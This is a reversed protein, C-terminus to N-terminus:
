LCQRFAVGELFGGGVELGQAAVTAQQVASNGGRVVTGGGRLKRFRRASHAPGECDLGPERKVCAPHGPGPPYCLRSGWM